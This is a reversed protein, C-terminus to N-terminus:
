RVPNNWLNFSNIHLPTVVIRPVHRMDKWCFRSLAPVPYATLPVCFKLRDRGELSSLPPALSNPSLGDMLLCRLLLLTWTGPHLILPSTEWLFYSDIHERHSPRPSVKWTSAGKELFKEEVGAEVCNCCFSSHESLTVKVWPACGFWAPVSLRRSPFKPGLISPHLHRERSTKTSPSM